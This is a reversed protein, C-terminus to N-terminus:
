KKISKIIDFLERIVGEGGKANTVIHAIEKIEKYADNPAVAVGVNKMAVLDNLDNGVYMVAELPVNIKTLYTCLTSLKDEIGNLCFLGLKEARKQVVMNTETSLIIQKIDLKKIFSIALGDSRNVIVSENGFQDVIAKNNTMVGDFDYVILKIQNVNSKVGSNKM